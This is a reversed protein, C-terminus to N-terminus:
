PISSMFKLYNCAAATKPFSKGPQLSPASKPSPSISSNNLAPLSTIFTYILIHETNDSTLCAGLGLELLEPFSFVVSCALRICDWWVQSVIFKCVNIGQARLLQIANVSFYKSYLAVDTSTGLIGWKNKEEKEKM